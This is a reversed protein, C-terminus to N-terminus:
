VGYGEVGRTTITSDFVYGDHSINQTSQQCVYGEVVSYPGNLGPSIPVTGVYDEAVSRADMWVRQVSWYNCTGAGRGHFEGCHYLRIPVSIM